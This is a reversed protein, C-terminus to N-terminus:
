FWLVFALIAVSVVLAATGSLYGNGLRRFEPPSQLDDRIKERPSRLDM